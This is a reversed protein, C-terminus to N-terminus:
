DRWHKEWSFNCTDSLQTYGYGTIRYGQNTWYKHDVLYSPVDVSYKGQNAAEILIEKVKTNNSIQLLDKAQM